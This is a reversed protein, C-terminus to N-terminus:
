ERILDDLEKKLKDMEDLIMKQDRKADKINTEMADSSVMLDETYQSLIKMARMQNQKEGVIYNRYKEYDNKVTELFENEKLSKKLYKQKDVLLKRKADIQKEIQSLYNDRDVVSLSDKGRSPEREARFRTQEQIQEQMKNLVPQLVIAEIM